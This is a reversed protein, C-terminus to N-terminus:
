SSMWNIVHLSSYLTRVDCRGNNAKQSCRNKVCQAVDPHVVPRPTTVPHGIGGQFGDDFTECDRGNWLQPCRCEHGGPRDLCTGGHRCPASLCDDVTDFECREGATGSLCSCYFSTSTPVCTAGNQCPSSDCFVHTFQCRDGSYGQVYTICDDMLLFILWDVM